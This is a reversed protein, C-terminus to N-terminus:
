SSILSKKHDFIRRVARGLENIDFPKMIFESIGLSKARAASIKESYGTCLIIPIDPRINILEQALKDGTMNPMTMDTIVLHFRNPQNRFLELAEISSTRITVEYGLHELMKKGVETLMPEDDVLLIREREGLPPFESPAFDTIEEPESLLPLFINFVSGQGLESKVSISGGHNKVLGHVVALGLGTGEGVKKTTFYPDFIKGLIEPPMGEGDDKVTLQVYSGLPLDPFQARNQESVRLTNLSIELVGGKSRMAHAANTCLNMLIQHIQTPNANVIGQYNEICQRIEITAPLSARLLKVTEKILPAIPLPKKSQDSYRSFTLIQKVLEKARQSAKLAFQLNPLAKSEPPLELSALETYGIIASLINNFDHAIGGALTGIAEMKQAQILQIELKKRESIDEMIAQVGSIQGDASGMPTLHYRLYLEKGNPPAYPTEFVGGKNSQLCLRFNESLGAKQFAPFTLVNVQALNALPPLDLLDILIPNADIISGQHNISLIGLPANEVLLRYRKESLRLAEEVQKQRSYLQANAIAGSIQAAIREIFKVDAPSYADPKASQLNLAGIVENKFILPVMIMSRFGAEMIPGLSPFEQCLKEKNEESIVVGSRTHMIQEIASGSLPFAEGKKRGKIEPGSVYSVMFTNEARNIIVIALRDFPILKKAEAAFVDYVEEIHLTSNVIRGIEAISASEQALWQFSGQIKQLAEENRKRAIINTFIEAIMKLIKIDEEKWFIQRNQVAFSLFGILNDGLILPFFLLSQAAQAQWFKKENEAEGPLDAIQPISITEGAMLKNRLWPFSSLPLPELTTKIEAGPASTWSFIQELDNQNLNLLSLSAYDVAWFKGLAELANKIEEAIEPFSLNIFRASIETVLKELALRRAMTEQANKNITIDSLCYLIAPKGKWSFYNDKADVWIVEGTKRLVRIPYSNPTKEGAIRKQYNQQVMERDDPHIFEMFPCTLLEPEPSGSIELAKRNVFRAKNDQLIIVAEQLNEILHRYRKESADILKEAQQRTFLFKSGAMILIIFFLFLGV